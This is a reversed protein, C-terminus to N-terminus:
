LRPIANAVNGALVNQRVLRVDLAQELTKLTADFIKGRWSSRTGREQHSPRAPLRPRAVDDLSAPSPAAIPGHRRRRRACDAWRRLQRPHRRVPASRAVRPAAQRGCAAYAPTGLKPPPTPANGGERRAGGPDGAAGAVASRDARRPCSAGSPCRRRASRGWPRWQARSTSAWILYQLDIVADRCRVLARELINGLERVNGPFRYRGLGRIADDALTPTDRGLDQALRRLLYNALVPIDGPRERLPPLTIPFVFLRYYLDARFLKREVMQALDSRPRSIRVDVPVPWGGGWAISKASRCCARLKAWTPGAAAWVEDLLLTVEAIPGLRRKPAQHLRREHGFLESELLEAPQGRLQRRSTIAARPLATSTARSSRRGGSVWSSCRRTDVAVDQRRQAGRMVAGGCRPDARPGATTAAPAAAAVTRVLNM